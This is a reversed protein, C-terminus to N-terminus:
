MRIRVTALFNSVAANFASPNQRPSGHGAQPIVTMRARPLLRGLEDTVLRHLEDTDAGRVILAPMQLRRVEDKSLLPFPNSSATLAKFFPANDMVTKRREAPLRDFAGSTDFADIFIRMAGADNGAAFAKGAPEHVRQMFDRYLAAGRASNTAWLHVPPEALVLSRVLEPHKLACALAAFAGYSTGVLHAQGLKLASVFGALDEADVLASHNTSVIANTNPYHYRRSYALVRYQSSLATILPQWARYDGQGGHLLIVPEGKGSEIFHLHIAGVELKAPTGDNAFCLLGPFLLLLSLASIRIM